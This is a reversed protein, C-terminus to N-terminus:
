DAGAPQGKGASAQYVVKGGVMTMLVKTNAIQMPAVKLLNQSIIIMDALKGPEISGLIKERRDRYAGDLTYAKIAEPLTVRENPHWGGPPTGQPTERTLFEQIGKWPNPTVVPWDSGAALHAGGALIDHWPWARQARKPGVNVAWVHLVDYNPVEHLPQMSAIVDLKGFRPIEAASPDEIHEVSDRLDKNDTAKEAQQYADLAMQIGRDGIAHTFVQFGLRNIEVVYKTYVAPDWNLHGRTPANSYPQLMAATHSEIVGDAFVKVAGVDLWEDHYKARLGEVWKMFEPFQSTTGPPNDIPAGYFRATLQALIM